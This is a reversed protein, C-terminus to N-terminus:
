ARVGDIAAAVALVFAGASAVTRVVNWRNWPAEVASRVDHLEVDTATALDVKAMRDNLPVNRAGTVGLVGVVFVAASAALLAAPRTRLPNGAAATAAVLALPTGVFVVGFVPNLIAVNIRQFAELYTRDAVERFAPAVSTQYAWFLGANLGAGVVAAGVVAGGASM